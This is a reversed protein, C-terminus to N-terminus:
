CVGFSCVLSSITRTPSEQLASSLWNLQVLVVSYFRGNKNCIQIFSWCKLVARGLTTALLIFLIYIVHVRLSPDCSVVSLRRAGGRRCPLKAEIRLLTTNHSGVSFFVFQSALEKSTCKCPFMILSTYYKHHLHEQIRVFSYALQTAINTFM